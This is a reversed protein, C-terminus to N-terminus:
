SLLGFLVPAWLLASAVGGYILGRTMSPSAANLRWQRPVAYSSRGM